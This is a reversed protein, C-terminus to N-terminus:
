KKIKFFDSFCQHVVSTCKFHLLCIEELGIGELFVLVVYRVCLVRLVYM